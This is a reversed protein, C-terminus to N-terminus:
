DDLLPLMGEKRFISPNWEAARAILVSTCGTDDAFKQQSNYNLKVDLYTIITKAESNNIINGVVLFKVV